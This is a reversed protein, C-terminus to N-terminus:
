RSRPLRRPAWAEQLLTLWRRPCLRKAGARGGACPRAARPHGRNLARTIRTPLRAAVVPLAVPAAQWRGWGTKQGPPPWWGAAPRASDLSTRANKARWGCPKAKVAPARWAALSERRRAPSPNEGQRRPAGQPCRSRLRRACPACAARPKRSSHSSPSPAPHAPSCIEWSPRWECCAAAAAPKPPQLALIAVWRVRLAGRHPPM